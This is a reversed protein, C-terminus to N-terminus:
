HEASDKPGIDPGEYHVLTQCHTLFQHFNSLIRIREEQDGEPSLVFRVPGLRKLETCFTELPFSSSGPAELGRAARDLMGLAPFAAEYKQRYTGLRSFEVVFIPQRHITQHYLHRGSVVSPTFPLELYPKTEPNRIGEPVTYPVMRPPQWRTELLFLGALGACVPLWPIRYGRHRIWRELGMLGLLALATFGIYAFRSFVRIVTVLPIWELLATPTFLPIGWFSLPQSRFVLIPGLSLGLFLASLVLLYGVQGRTEKDLPRCAFWLFPLMLYLLGPHFLFESAYHVNSIWPIMWIPLVLHLLDLSWYASFMMPVSDVFQTEYAGAHPHYFYAAMLLGVTLVPPLAIQFGRLWNEWGPGYGFVALRLALYIGAYLGYYWDSFLALPWALILGAEHIWGPSHELCSVERTQLRRELCYFFLFLWPTSLLNLHIQHAWRYPSFAALVGLLVSLPRNLGFCRAWMAAFVGTLATWLGFLVNYAVCPGAGGTLPAALIGNALSLTHYRLDCGWPIFILDCHLPSSHREFLAYYVWWLNWLNTGKDGAPGSSLHDTPHLVVPSCALATIAAFVLSFVVPDSWIKRSWWPAPAPTIKIESANEM